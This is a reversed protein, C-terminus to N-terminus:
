RRKLYIKKIEESISSAALISAEMRDCKTTDIFQLYDVNSSLISLCNMLSNNYNEINDKSMTTRPEISLSNIYDRTIAENSSSFLAFFYNCYQRVEDLKKFYNNYRAKDMMNLKYYMDYWIFTDIIGRDCIIIDNENLNRNIHKNGLEFQREVFGIRDKLLQKKEEKTKLTQYILGAPEELCTTRLNCKKFFEFLNDICTTKGSRPTGSVTIVVPYPLNGYKYKLEQIEEKKRNLEMLRTLLEPHSEFIQNLYEDYSANDSKQKESFITNSKIM